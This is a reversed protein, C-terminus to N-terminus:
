LGSKFKNLYYRTVEKTEFFLFAGIISMLIFDFLAKITILTIFIDSFVRQENIYNIGDHINFYSYPFLFLFRVIILNIIIAYININNTFSNRNLFYPILSILFIEKYLYNSTLFFLFCSIYGSILFLKLSEDFFFNKKTFVKKKKFFAFIKITLYIYSSYVVILLFIYNFEISYKIIKALSNLSYLYHYGAKGDGSASMAKIYDDINLFLYLSSLLGFCIIYILLKNLKRKDNELFFNILLVIPYIKVFSLFFYLIWNILYIRNKIIFLLSVFVVIDLNASEFSLMTSPNFICLFFLFYEIINKPAIINNIFYISFFILLYPLYFTYFKELNESYPLILFLPGYAIPQNHCPKINDFVDFGLSNCKLWKVPEKIDFFLESPKWIFYKIFDDNLLFVVLIFSLIVLINQLLNNNLIYKQSM